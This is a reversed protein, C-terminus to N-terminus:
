AEEMKRRKNSFKEFHHLCLFVHYYILTAPVSYIAFVMTLGLGDSTVGLFLGPFVAVIIYLMLQFLYVRRKMRLADTVKDILYGGLLGFVLYIPISPMITMVFGDIFNMYCCEYEREEMPYVNGVGYVSCFVIAIHFGGISQQLSRENSM